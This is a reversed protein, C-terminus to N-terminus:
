MANMVRLQHLSAATRLFYSLIVKAMDGTHQLVSITSPSTGFVM